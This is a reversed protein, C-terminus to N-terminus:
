KKISKDEQSKKKTGKIKFNDLNGTAKIIKYRARPDKEQIIKNIYVVFNHDTTNDSLFRIFEQENGPFDVEDYLNSFTRKGNYGIIFYDLNSRITPDLENKSIQINLILSIKYHRGQSYLEELIKNRPPLSGIVDDLILLVRQIKKSDKGFQNIAQRQLEMLNSIIKEEFRNFINGEPLYDYENNVSNTNTIAFVKDFQKQETWYKVLYKTLYSKGSERKAICGIAFPTKFEFKNSM